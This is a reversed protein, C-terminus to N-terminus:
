NSGSNHSSVPHQHEFSERSFRTSSNIKGPFEDAHSTTGQAFSSFAPNTIATSQPHRIDATPASSPRVNEFAEGKNKRPRDQQKNGKLRSPTQILGLQAADRALDYRITHEHPRSIVAANFQDGNTFSDEGPFVCRHFHKQHEVEAASLELMLPELVNLHGIIFRLNPDPQAAESSLKARAMDAIRYMKLKHRLEGYPKSPNTTDPLEM